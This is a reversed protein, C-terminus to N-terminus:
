KGRFTREYDEFRLKAIKSRDCTRAVIGEPRGLADDDMAARTKSITREMLEYTEVLGAPIKATGLRPTLPVQIEVANSTLDREDLFTQGDNDRWAAIKEIPVSLIEARNPITAVDFLRASISQNGTYQNSNKTTKGGYVELYYVTLVDSAAIVDAIPKLTDVIGLQPNGILDGKAYLLEERSGIIYLGDPFVIIRGNVGDIKETLIAPEDFSVLVEDLLKGREGLKHYTLISPYKTMSNIKTLNMM